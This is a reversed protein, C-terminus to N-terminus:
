VFDDSPSGAAVSIGEFFACTRKFASAEPRDHYTEVVVRAEELLANEVQVWLATSCSGLEIQM